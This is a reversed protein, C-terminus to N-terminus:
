ARTRRKEVRKKNTRVVGTDARGNGSRTAMARKLAVILAPGRKRLEARHHFSLEQLIREGKPTLELLVERRDEGGRHRRVCGASALRNILEVASHHKIQLREALEGVRPRTQRPLGKLALMLQHQQPELGADRAAQESFHLFRRLQYRVDALSEYDTSTQSKGM